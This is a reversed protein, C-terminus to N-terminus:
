QEKHKTPLPKYNPMSDICALIDDKSFRISSRPNADDFKRARIKGASVWELLRNRPVGLYTRAQEKTCWPGPEGRDSHRPKKPAEDEKTLEEQLAALLLRITDKSM